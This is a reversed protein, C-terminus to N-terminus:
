RYASGHRKFWDEGAVEQLNNPEAVLARLSDGHLTRGMKGRTELVSRSAPGLFRM